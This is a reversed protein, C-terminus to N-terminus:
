RYSSKIWGAIVEDPRHVIDRIESVEYGEWALRLARQRTSPTWVLKDNKGDKSNAIGIWQDNDDDDVIDRRKHYTISFVSKLKWEDGALQSELAPFIVGHKDHVGSYRKAEDETRYVLRVSIQRDLYTKQHTSGAYTAYGYEGQPKNAHHLLIVAYGENRLKMAAKNLITWGKKDNEDMNPMASRVTDIVIVDPKVEDVQDRFDQKGNETELDMTLDEDDQMTQVWMQLNQGPNGHIAETSDMRRCLTRAGNEYDFYLVKAEREIAFPGINLKDCAMAVMAHLAFMSKGHGSYGFIQVLSAKKLWPQILYEESDAKDILRQRDAFTILPPLKIKGSIGGRAAQKQARGPHDKFDKERLSNITGKVEDESLPSEFLEAMFKEVYQTLDPVLYVGKALLEGVYQAVLDNRNGQGLKGSPTRKAQKSADAWTDSRETHYGTGSERTASLDVDELREVKKQPAGTGSVSPWGRFEPLEALDSGPLLDFSYNGGDKEQTETGELIFASPPAMALGGDGRVDIGEVKNGNEDLVGGAHTKVREGPYAFYHHTGKKTQVRVPSQLGKEALWQGAGVTDVDVVFLNSIKGTVVAVGREPNNGWHKVAEDVTMHRTQFHRWTISQGNEDKGLDIGKCFKEGPRTPVVSWGRDLAELAFDLSPNSM